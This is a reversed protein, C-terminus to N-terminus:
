EQKVLTEKKQARLKMWRVKIKIWTFGRIYNDDQDLKCGILQEDDAIKFVERRGFGMFFERDLYTFEQNLLM